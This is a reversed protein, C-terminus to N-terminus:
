GIKLRTRRKFLHGPWAAPKWRFHWQQLGCNVDQVPNFTAMGLMVTNNFHSGMRSERATVLTMIVIVSDNVGRLVVPCWQQRSPLMEMNVTDIGYIPPLPAPPSSDNPFGVAVWDHAMQSPYFPSSWLSLPSSDPQIIRSSKKHDRSNLPNILTFLYWCWCWQWDFDSKPLHSPDSYVCTRKSQSLIM